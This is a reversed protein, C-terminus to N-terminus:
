KKTNSLGFKGGGGLYGALGGLATGGLAFMSKRRLAKRRSEEKEKESLNKGVTTPGTADAALSGLLGGGLGGGIGAGYPLLNQVTNTTEGLQRGVGQIQGGIGKVTKNVADLEGKPDFNVVNSVGQNLDQMHRAGIVTTGKIAPAKLVGTGGLFNRNFYRKGLAGGTVIDFANSATFNKRDSLKSKVEELASTAGTVNHKQNAVQDQLFRLERSDETRALEGAGESGFLTDKYEKGVLSEQFKNLAATYDKQKENHKYLDRDKVGVQQELGPILANDYAKGSGYGVTGGGLTKALPGRELHPRVLRLIKQLAAASKTIGSGRVSNINNLKNELSTV